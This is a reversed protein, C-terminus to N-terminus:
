FSKQIDENSGFFLCFYKQIEVRAELINRGQGRFHTFDYFYHSMIMSILSYKDDLIVIKILVM